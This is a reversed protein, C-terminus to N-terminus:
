EKEWSFAIIAAAFSGAVFLFAGSFLVRGSWVMRRVIKKQAIYSDKYNVRTVIKGNM